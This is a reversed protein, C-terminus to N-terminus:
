EYYGGTLISINVWIDHHRVFVCQPYVNWVISDSYNQLEDCFNATIHERQLKLFFLMAVLLVLIWVFFLLTDLKHEQQQEDDM